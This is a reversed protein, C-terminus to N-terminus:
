PRQARHGGTADVGVEEVELGPGEEVTVEVHRRSAEADFGEDDPGRHIIAAAMTRALQENAPQQRDPNIFGLIGCM